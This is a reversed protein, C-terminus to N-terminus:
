LNEFAKITDIIRNVDEDSLGPHLPLTLIRIFVREAVPLSPKNGYCPYTHIPKYHVGTGIGSNELYASLDDRKDCRICYIHWSSKCDKTDEPPTEIGDIDKLGETYMKIIERRRKNMSELKRLQVLGIAAQIDNMNCKLGIEDVHYEWWYSEKLDTRDWTGKDIGLWRLRKAREM